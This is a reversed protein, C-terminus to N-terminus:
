ATVGLLANLVDDTTTIDPERRWHQVAKGDMEVYYAVYGTEAPPKTDVRLLYGFDSLQKDTPNIITIDDHGISNPRVFQQKEDIYGYM